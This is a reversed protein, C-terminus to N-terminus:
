CGVGPIRYDVDPTTPKPSLREIIANYFKLRKNYYLLLNINKDDKGKREMWKQTEKVSLQASNLIAQKLDFTSPKNSDTGMGFNVRIGKHTMTVRVDLTGEIAQEDYIDKIVKLPDMM